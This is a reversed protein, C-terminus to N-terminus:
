DRVVGSYGGEDDDDYDPFLYNYLKIAGIVVGAAVLSLIIITGIIGM